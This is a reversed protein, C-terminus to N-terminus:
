LWLGPEPLIVQLAAEGRVRGARMADAEPGCAGCVDWLGRTGYPVREKGRGEAEGERGGQVLHCGVVWTSGLVSALTDDEIIRTKTGCGM